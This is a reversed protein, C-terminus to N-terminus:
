ADKKQKELKRVYPYSNQYNEAVDIRGRPNIDSCRVLILLGLFLRSFVVSEDINTNVKLVTALLLGSGRLVTNFKGTMYQILM